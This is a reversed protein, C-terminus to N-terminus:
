QWAIVKSITWIDPWRSLFNDFFEFSVSVFLLFNFIILIVCFVCASTKAIKYQSSSISGFFKSRILVLIVNVHQIGKSLFELTKTELLERLCGFKILQPGPFLSYHALYLIAESFELLSGKWAGTVAVPPKKVPVLVFYSSFYFTCFIGDIVKKSNM